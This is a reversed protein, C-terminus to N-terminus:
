IRVLAENLRRILDGKTGENVILFNAMAIPGAQHLNEIQSHDRSRAEEASLPRTPRHALRAYRIAPSAHIAIGVFADGYVERFRLYEEWSYFSELVVPEDGDLAEIKEIVRDAYVFPGFEARLGERAIRENAENVELGLRAVEDFTVDGFYVKPWKYTKVIHDIAESKGSGPLGMIAVVKRQDGMPM